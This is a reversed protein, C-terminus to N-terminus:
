QHANRFNTEIIFNKQRIELAQLIRTEALATALGFRNVSFLTHVYRASAVSRTRHVNTSFNPKNPSDLFHQVRWLSRRSTVTRRAWFSVVSGNLANSTYVQLGQDTTFCNIVHGSRPDYAREAFTVSDGSYQNLVFNHNYGHSYFMKQFAGRLRSGIPMMQRSDLPTGGVPAIKGTPTQDFRSPTCRDAKVLLMQDAASGSGNDALNFHSHHTFNTM